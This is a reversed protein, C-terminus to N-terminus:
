FFFFLLLSMILKNFELKYTLMTILLKNSTLDNQDAFKM